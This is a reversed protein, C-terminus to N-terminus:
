SFLREDMGNKHLLCCLGMGLGYCSILQGLAIWLAQTLFVAPYFRGPPATVFYWEGGIVLANVVVPFLPALIPLGRWRVRRTKYSLIAAIITALTGFLVDLGGLINAGTMMGILNALLCGVGLGWIAASSYAPLVTLAESVRVLGYSWPALVGTLATYCAAIMAATVLTRTNKM